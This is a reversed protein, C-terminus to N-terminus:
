NSFISTKKTHDIIVIDPKLPTIHFNAPITGGASTQYDKIDIHFDCKSTDISNAIYNLINDHRWTYRGQDLYTKCCNIIHNTTERSHCNTYKDTLSKGWQLLNVRTPLSDLSANLIFKM